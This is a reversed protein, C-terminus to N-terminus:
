SNPVNQCASTCSHVLTDREHRTSHTLSHLVIQRNGSLHVSLRRLLVVVRFVRVGFCPVNLPREFGGTVKAVVGGKVAVIKEGRADSEEFVKETVAVFKM